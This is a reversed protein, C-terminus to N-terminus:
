TPLLVRLLNELAGYATNTIAEVAIEDPFSLIDEEIILRM